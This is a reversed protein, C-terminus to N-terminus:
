HSIDRFCARHGIYNKQEKSEKILTALVLIKIKEFSCVRWKESEVIMM